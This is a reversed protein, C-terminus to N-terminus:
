RAKVFADILEAEEDGDLRRPDQLRRALRYCTPVSLQMLEAFAPCYGAATAHHSVPGFAAALEVQFLLKAIHERDPGDPAAPQKARM